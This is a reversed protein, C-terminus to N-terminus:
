RMRAATEELVRGLRAGPENATPPGYIRPLDALVLYEPHHVEAITAYDISVNGNSVALEYIHVALPEGQRAHMLEAVRATAPLAGFHLHRKTVTWGRSVFVAGISGGELIEAHEAAFREDVREPYMVVAFTRCIELGDHVSFLKSTRYRGDSQLVDVGYSGFRQEIRESNLLEREPAELGAAPPQVGGGAVPQAQVAFVAAFLALAALGADSVRPLLTHNLRIGM